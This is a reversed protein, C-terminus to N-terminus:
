KTVSGTFVTSTLHICLEMETDYLNASVELKSSEIKIKSPDRVIARVTIDRNLADKIVEIGSPGSAGFLAIMVM